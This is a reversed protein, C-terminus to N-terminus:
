IHRLTIALHTLSQRARRLFSLRTVMWPNDAIGRLGLSFADGSDSQMIGALTSGNSAKHADLAQQVGIAIKEEIRKGIAAAGLTLTKAFSPRGESGAPLAKKPQDKKPQRCHCCADTVVTGTSATYYFNNKGSTKGNVIQGCHWNPMYKHEPEAM